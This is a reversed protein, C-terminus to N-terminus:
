EEGGLESRMLEGKLLVAGDVVVEEGDGVGAHVVRDDGIRLGPEVARVDFTGPARGRVFVIMATKMELVASAPIVLVQEAGADANAAAPVELEVETQSGPVLGKCTDDPALRVRRSRTPADVVPLAGLVHANCRPGGRPELHAVSAPTLVVNAGDALRAEILVRGESVLRFLHAEPTVHAGLPATREVVTGDVPSRIPLQASLIPANAAPEALGFSAVLTRAAALDARALDLELRAEDLAIQTAAESAVLGELRAVKRGQTETRTRARVLDAVARAAEPADLWALVQGRKVHDGERVEFRAIRGALLTGAEAAGEPSAVVDAPLRVTGVPQRRMVRATRIRGSEVLTPEVHVSRPMGSQAASTSATASPSPAAQSHKDADAGSRNCGLLASVCAVVLWRHPRPHKM